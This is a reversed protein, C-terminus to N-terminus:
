VASTSFVMYDLRHLQLRNRRRNSEQLISISEPLGSDKCITTLHKGLSEKRSMSVTQIFITEIESCKELFIIYRTNDRNESCM